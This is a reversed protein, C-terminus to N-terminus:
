TPGAQRHVAFIKPQIAMSAISIGNVAVVMEASYRWKAKRPLLKSGKPDVASGMRLPDPKDTYRALRERRNERSGEEQGKAETDRQKGGNKVRCVM